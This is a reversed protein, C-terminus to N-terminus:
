RPLAQNPTIVRGGATATTAVQPLFTPEADIITMAHRVPHVRKRGTTAILLVAVASM